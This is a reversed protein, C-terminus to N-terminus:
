LVGWFFSLSASCDDDIFVVQTPTYGLVASNPNGFNGAAERGTAVGPSATSPPPYSSALERRRRRRRRLSSAGAAAPLWPFECSIRLFRSQMLASPNQANHAQSRFSWFVRLLKNIRQYTSPITTTNPYVSLLEFM